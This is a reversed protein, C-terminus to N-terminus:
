WRDSSPLLKYFLRRGDRTLQATSRCWSAQGFAARRRVKTCFSVATAAGKENGAAALRGPVRAGVGRARAM